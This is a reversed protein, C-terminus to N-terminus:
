RLNLQKWRSLSDIQPSQPQPLPAQNEASTSLTSQEQLRFEQSWCPSNSGAQRGYVKLMKVSAIELGKVGKYIFPVLTQEDPLQTAELMIQLCGDRLVPKAVVGKSQLSRNILFAIARVDGQKALEVPNPPVTTM